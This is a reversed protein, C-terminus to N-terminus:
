PIYTQTPDFADTLRSQGSAFAHDFFLWSDFQPQASGTLVLYASPAYVTGSVSLHARGSVSLVGAGSRDFFLALGQYAGSTPASLTVTANGSVTFRNSGGPGLDDQRPGPEGSGACASTNTASYARCTVYVTVGTGTLTANGSVNVPGAIVYVGPSLTVQANGSVTLGDYIGPSLTVPTATHDPPQPGDHPKGHPDSQGRPTRDQRPGPESPRGDANPDPQAPGTLVPATLGSLPDAMPAVGTQPTPDLSVRGDARYSGVIDIATASTSASGTWLAADQANSDVVVSGGTITFGARGTAVLAGRASPNMVCLACPFAIAEALASAGSANSALFNADGAYSATVSDSGPPLDTTTLTATTVGSATSVPETGLTRTSGNAADTVSFTVSGTPSGAQTTGPAVVGITATITISAPYTASAATSTLTTTTTAQNVTQTLPDQTSDSKLYNTDGAYAATIAHTGAVLAYTTFTATTVGTTRDTSLTGTGLVTTGDSFTVTGTPTALATSGPASVSVTATFTVSQGYSSPDPTSLVTATTPARNVTQALPDATSASGTFNSDGGYSATIAHDGPALTALTFTATTVAGTTSLAATGIPHGGDSFTVTGTPAAADASGPSTVSVTATFAVSQGSVSIPASSAVAVQTAAQQVVQVVGDTSGSFHSDGAYTATIAHDGVAGEFATFRATTVGGVTSLSATGLTQDGDAFVVSGSPDGTATSGPAEVAVTATLVVVQGFASPNASSALTTTTAAASVTQDITQRSPAFDTDGAYSATVTDDGTPLAPTTLAATTVGDITTLAATGLAQVPDGAADVATFTVTGTPFATAGTGPSQVSVTDTFTVAQGYVSRGSTSSALTSSTAAQNVTQDLPDAANDSAAFNADGSYTATISHSGTSAFAVQCTATGGSLPVASCIDGTGDDFTVTGAAPGLDTVSSSVTATFTVTQDVVGPNASSALTVTTPAHTVTLIAPKTTVTGASNTFVAEYESGTMPGSATVSFSDSTAGPIPAFTAGGDASEQWQVTPAPSGSAGATFAATAGATVTTSAPQTTVAPPQTVDVTVTATSSASGDVAPGIYTLDLINPYGPGGGVDGLPADGGCNGVGTVSAVQNNSSLTVGGVEGALVFNNVIAFPTGVLDVNATGLTFGSCSEAVAYPVSTLHSGAMTFRSSGGTSTSFTPDAVDVVLTQPDFAVMSYATNLPPGDGDGPTSSANDGSGTQALPLYAQPSSSTMGDCYVTFSSSNPYVTYDGNGAGPQATHIDACSQPNRVTYTFTDVGAFGAQPTYTLTGGSGASVTGHAGQSFGSVVVPIGTGGPTSAASADITVPAGAPTSVTIPAAVPSSVLPTVIVTVTATSTGSADVASGLYQLQMAYLAGMGTSVGPVQGQPGIGGCGGGGQASLIQDGSTSVSGFAGSGVAAGYDNVIGFPTGVLDVNATGESGGSCAEGEGYPMFSFPGGAMVIQGINSSAFTADMVNVTLNQPNLAVMSFTTTMTPGGDGVSSSTNEGSGQAPLALYAQPSSTNMANCYVTFEESNPYITYNGNPAGPDAAQIDACSQPNRISYTFTDTGAFGPDPTYTLTGDASEGVTGHAGQSFASLVVPV